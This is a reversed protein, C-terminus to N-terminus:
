DEKFARALRDTLPRVLYEFFTREGTKIMVEAPMGPLLTRKGLAALGETTVQIRALYYSFGNAPDTLRDASITLVKGPVTPTLRANFASFRIESELGPAVRDIDQPRVRAEVLLPEGRPIIDMIMDGPRLVGGVTHIKMGVVSGDVPARIVTREVTKELAGMRERLDSLTTQVARLQEAVESSFNREVQVIQLRTEGIQVKAGAIAAQHQGRDGSVEAILRQSERLRGKDGLGKAFLKNLGDIEEQYLAIRDTESATLAEFGRVQEDLQGIRQQLVEIEGDRAKRRTEFVRQQGTIALHVRPDVQAGLLDEPFDIANREDREAILRAEEARQALYQSRIIELQARADTDDLRMLVQGTKVSDGERVTIETLIGGEFHQITKRSSEVNVMGEAVVASDIPALASWLGLGGFGILLILVGLIREPRDTTRM